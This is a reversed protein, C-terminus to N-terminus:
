KHEHPMIADDFATRNANPIGKAALCGLCVNPNAGRM